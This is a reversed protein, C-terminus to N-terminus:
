YHDHYTLMSTIAEQDFLKLDNKILIVRSSPVARSMEIAKGSADPDLAILVKKFRMLQLKHQTLLRTGLLALGTYMPIIGVACASPADEVLVGIPGNGCSFLSTITGYKKWKPFPYTLARGSYGEIHDGVKVPFMVRDEVPSYKIGVLGSTYAEYSNVSKLYEIINPRNHVPLLFEPIPNRVTQVQQLKALRDKVSNISSLVTNRGGADCSAKFCGWRLVGSSNTIGFTNHGHCFPCNGRYTQGERVKYSKVEDLQEKYTAM